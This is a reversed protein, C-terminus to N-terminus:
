VTRPPALLSVRTYAVRFGAREANRQAASGPTTTLSAITCGEESAAALRAAILARQVGRRRFDPHTAASGLEAVPGAVAYAGGGAPQGDIRALFRRATASVATPRIVAVMDDPPPYAGAFGASVVDLWADRLDDAAPIVEVDGATELAPAPLPHFLVNLFSDLRYSRARLEGLLSPDALPCLDIRPELDREAFFAEVRDIEAASVPGDMGLGLARCIPSGSGGYAAVGDGMEMLAAGSASDFRVQEMVYRRLRQVSAAELFRALEGPLYPSKFLASM